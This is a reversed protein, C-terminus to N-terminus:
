RRLPPNSVPQPQMLQGTFQQRFIYAVRRSETEPKDITQQGAAKYIHRKSRRSSRAADATGCSDHQAEGETRHGREEYEQKNSLHRRRAQFAEHVPQCWGDNDHHPNQEDQTAQTQANCVYAGCYFCLFSRNDNM